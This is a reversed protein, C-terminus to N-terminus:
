PRADNATWQELLEDIAEAMAEDTEEDGIARAQSQHARCATMRIELNSRSLAAIMMRPTM